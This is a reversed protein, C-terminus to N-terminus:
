GVTDKALSQSLDTLPVLGPTGTVSCHEGPILSTGSELWCWMKAWNQRRHGKGKKWSNDALLDHTHSGM